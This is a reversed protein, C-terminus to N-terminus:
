ILHNQIEFEHESLQFLSLILTTVARTQLAASPLQLTHSRAGPINDCNLPFEEPKTHQIRANTKIVSRLWLFISIKINIMLFLLYHIPFFIFSSLACIRAAPLPRMTM